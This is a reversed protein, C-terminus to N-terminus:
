SSKVLLEALEATSDHFNASGGLALEGRSFRVRRSATDAILEACHCLVRDREGVIRGPLRLRGPRLRQM